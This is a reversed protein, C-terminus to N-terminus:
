VETLVTFYKFPSLFFFFLDSIVTYNPFESVQTKMLVQFDFLFNNHLVETHM